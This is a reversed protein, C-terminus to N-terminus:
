PRLTGAFVQWALAAKAVLSLVMYAKEGYLYDSWRGTKKYQLIMNVAFSSFAIFISVFIWYVFTPVDGEGYQNIGYLYTGVVAWPGLGAITGVIYSLWNTKKTTQNHVEMVLGLLNMVLTAGFVLALTSIDSVGALMAIAVMMTSASLGYEFWRVKNIGLKLDAEYKKRYVTAIVLHAIASMFFFAAVLYALNVDFLHRQAQVLTPEGGNSALADATLYQTTVPFLSDSRSLLIVAVGQGAHLVAMVWNWINLTEFVGRKTSKSASKVPAKTTKKTTTKKSTASKKTTTSKKAASAAKTTKKSTTKKAKSTSATRKKTTTAM